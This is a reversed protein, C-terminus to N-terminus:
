FHFGQKGIVLHPYSTSVVFINSTGRQNHLHLCTWKVACFLNVKQRLSRAHDDANWRSSVIIYFPWSIEKDLNPSGFYYNEGIM